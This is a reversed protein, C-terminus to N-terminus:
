FVACNIVPPKESGPLSCSTVLCIRPPHLCGASSLLNAEWWLGRRLGEPPRSPASIVEGQLRDKGALATGGPGPMEAPALRVSPFVGWGGSDSVQKGGKWYHWLILCCKFWENWFAKQINGTKKKLSSIILDTLFSLHQPHYRWLTVSEALFVTFLPWSRHKESAASAESAPSQGRDKWWAEKWGGRLCPGKIVWVPRRIELGVLAPAVVELRSVYTGNRVELFAGLVLCCAGFLWSSPNEWSFVSM